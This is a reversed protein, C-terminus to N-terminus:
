TSICFVSVELYDVILCTYSVKCLHAVSVRCSLFDGPVSNLTSSVLWLFVDEVNGTSEFFLGLIFFDRQINLSLLFFPSFPTVALVHLKHPHSASTSIKVCQPHFFVVSNTYKKSREAIPMPHQPLCLVQQLHPHSCCDTRLKWSESM